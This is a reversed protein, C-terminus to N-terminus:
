CSAVEREDAAVILRGVHEAVQPVVAGGLARIRAPELRDPLGDAVRRSRRTAELVGGDPNGWPGSGRDGAPVPGWAGTGLGEAGHLSHTYALVFLRDRVHPAGVTCASLVDWEADFGLDALDGLLTGFADRDALLGPVNEVIVYDPRVARVVDAM